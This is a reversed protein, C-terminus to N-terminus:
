LIFMEQLHHRCLLQKTMTIYTWKAIREHTLEKIIRAIEPGTIMWRWLASPNDTLNVAGRGGKKSM